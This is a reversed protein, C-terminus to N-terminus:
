DFDVQVADYISGTKALRRMADKNQRKAPAQSKQRKPQAVPPVDAVKKKAAKRAKEAEMGKKAWYALGYIRHDMVQKTEDDTFGLDRAASFADKFFAERKEPDAAQPFASILKQNEEQLRTKRDGDSLEQKVERPDRAYEILSNVQAIAADYAAKKQVYESPNTVSLNISPEEPIQNSLFTAFAEVTRDIREAQAQLDKRQNAIEVTKRSYDAQQMYGRKLDALSVENGDQLKVKVGDDPEAGPEEEEAEEAEAESQGEDDESTDEQEEATEAEEETAEQEEAGPEAEAQVEGNDQDEDPDYFDWEQPNDETLPHASETGDTSLNDTESM